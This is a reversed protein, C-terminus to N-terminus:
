DGVSNSKKDSESAESDEKIDLIAFTLKKAVEAIDDTSLDGDEFKQKRAKTNIGALDEIFTLYKETIKLLEDIIEMWDRM